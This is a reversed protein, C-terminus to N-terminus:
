GSIGLQWDSERSRGIAIASKGPGTQFPIGLEAQWRKLIEQEEPRNADDLIVAYDDALSERFYPIAPYRSQPTSGPPGDVILLDFERDSAM